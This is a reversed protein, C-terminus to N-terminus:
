ELVQTSTIKSHDYIILIDDGCRAYFIIHKNETIHKIILQESYQLFIESIPGPIPSAM